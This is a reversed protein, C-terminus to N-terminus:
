RMIYEGNSSFCYTGGQSSLTTTTPHTAPDRTSGLFPVAFERVRFRPLLLPPSRYLPAPPVVPSTPLNQGYCLRGRWLCAELLVAHEQVQQTKEDSTAEDRCAHCATAYTAHTAHITQIREGALQWYARVITGQWYARVIRGELVALVSTSARM